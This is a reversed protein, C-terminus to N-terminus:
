CSPSSARPFAGTFGVNPLMPMCAWVLWTPEYTFAPSLPEGITCDESTLTLFHEGDAWERLVRRAKSRHGRFCGVQIHQALLAYLYICSPNNFTPWRPETPSPPSFSPFHCLHPFALTFQRHLLRPEDLSRWRFRQFGYSDVTRHSFFISGLCAIHFAEPFPSDLQPILALSTLAVLSPASHTQAFLFTVHNWFFFPSGGNLM